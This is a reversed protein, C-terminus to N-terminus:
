LVLFKKSFATHYILICFMQAIIGWISDIIQLNTSCFHNINCLYKANSTYTLYCQKFLNDKLWINYQYQQIQTYMHQHM